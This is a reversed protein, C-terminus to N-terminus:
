ILLINHTHGLVTSVVGNIIPHSHGSTVETTNNIDTLSLVDENIVIQHMHYGVGRLLSLTTNIKSPLMSTDRIARWQYTIDAKDLRYVQMQQSGSLSFLLKNRTVYNVEYRFEEIGDQNFRILIDREHIAPFVLTWCNPIFEQQFGIPKNNLKDATPGFRCMIKGDSERPNFFQEYGGVFGTALCIPCRGEPTENNMRVCNCTIGTWLRKLLVCRDSTVNLMTELRQMNIEQINLGRLKYGDACGYEGGSYSGICHGSFYDIINTQHYGSYDYSPIDENYDDSASLDTNLV